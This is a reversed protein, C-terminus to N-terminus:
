NSRPSSESLLKWAWGFITAAFFPYAYFPFPKALANLTSGTFIQIFSAAFLVAAIFGTIRVVVPFLKQFSILFLSASWLGVGAGFISVNANLDLSTSSLILAEGITFILFASATVDDGKRFYYVVLFATAIILGIGDLCWALSRLSPSPAFSGAMGLVGGFFLGASAIIKTLKERGELRISDRYLKNVNASSTGTKQIQDPTM